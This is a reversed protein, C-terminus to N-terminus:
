TLSHWAFLFVHHIGGSFTDFLCYFLVNVNVILRICFDAVTMNFDAM